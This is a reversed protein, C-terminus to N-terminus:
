GAHATCGRLRACRRYRSGNTAPKREIVSRTRMAPMSASMFISARMSCNLLSNGEGNAFSLCLSDIGRQVIAQMSKTGCKVCLPFSIFPQVVLLHFFREGHRALPVVERRQDTLDEHEVALCSATM